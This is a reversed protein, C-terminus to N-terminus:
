FTPYRVHYKVSYIRFLFMVLVAIVGALMSNMTKALTLYIVSGVCSVTIYLEQSLVLPVQNSITDALIGGGIATWIGMIIAVMSNQNCSVAKEVGALSFAALGMADTTILIKYLKKSGIVHRKLYLIGFTAAGVILTLWIYFQQQIWFVPTELILDRVTGGANATIFALLIAGTIDMRAKIARLAGSMSAAIVGMIMFFNLVYSIHQLPVQLPQTTM